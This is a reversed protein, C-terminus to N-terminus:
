IGVILIQTKYQRIFSISVVFSFLCIRVEGTINTILPPALSRVQQGEFEKFRSSEKKEVVAKGPQLSQIRTEKALVECKHDRRHVETELRGKYKREEESSRGTQFSEKDILM